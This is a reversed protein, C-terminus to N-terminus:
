YEDNYLLRILTAKILEPYFYNDHIEIRYKSGM